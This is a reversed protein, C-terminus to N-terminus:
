LDSKHQMKVNRCHDERERVNEAGHDDNGNHLVVETRRKVM